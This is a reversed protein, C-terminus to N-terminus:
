IPSVRIAKPCLLLKILSSSSRPFQCDQDILGQAHSFTHGDRGKAKSKESKEISGKTALSLPDNRWYDTLSGLNSTIESTILIMSLLLNAHYTKM